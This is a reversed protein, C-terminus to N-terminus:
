ALRKAVVLFRHELRGPAAEEYAQHSYMVRFGAQRFLPLQNELNYDPPLGVAQWDRGGVQEALFFGGPKLVRRAEDLSCPAHWDLLLGMSADEFPLPGPYEWQRVEVGLPALRRSTKAYREPAEAVYLLAFPHGLALLTDRDEAGISLAQVGPRLFDRVRQWYDWTM